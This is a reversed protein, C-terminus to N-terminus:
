KNWNSAGMRARKEIKEDDEPSAQGEKLGSALLIFM